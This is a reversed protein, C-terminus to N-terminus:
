KELAQLKTKTEASAPNLELAKKYNAIAKEKDGKKAYGDGLSDYVNYSAPYNAVNMELLEIADNIKGPENMLIYAQTNVFAEPPLINFGYEAPFAEYHKKILAATTDTAAPKWNSFIFRLGDYEAKVPEADHSQDPYYVYKYQVGTNNQQLMTDLKLV